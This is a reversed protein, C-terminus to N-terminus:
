KHKYYVMSVFGIQYTSIQQYFQILQTNLMEHEIKDNLIDTDAVWVYPLSNNVAEKRGGIYKVTEPLLPNSVAQINHQKNGLYYNFSYYTLLSTHIVPANLDTNVIRVLPKIKQGSFFPNFIQIIAVIFFLIIL